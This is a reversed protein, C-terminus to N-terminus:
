SNKFSKFITNRNALCLFRIETDSIKEIGIYHLGIQLKFAKSNNGLSKLRNDTTSLTHINQFYSIQEKIKYQIEEDKLSHFANVFLSTLTVKM